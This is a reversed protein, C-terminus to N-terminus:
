FLIQNGHIPVVTIEPYWLKVSLAKFVDMLSRVDIGREDCSFFSREMQPLPM